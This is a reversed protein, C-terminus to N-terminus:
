YMAQVEEFDKIGKGGGSEKLLKEASEKSKLAALGHGRPTKINPSSVYYAQRMHVRELTYYDFVWLSADCATVVAICEGARWKFALGIDNFYLKEDEKIIVVAFRKDTIAAGTFHDKKGMPELEDDGAWAPPLMLATMLLAFFLSKSKM